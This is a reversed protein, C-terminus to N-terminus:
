GVRMVRVDAATDSVVWLHGGSEVLPVPTEYWGGANVQIGNTSSVTNDPGLYVDGEGLNQVLVMSTGDADIQVPTTEVSISRQLAM